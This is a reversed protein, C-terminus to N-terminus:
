TSMSLLVKQISRAFILFAILMTPKRGIRDSVPGILLQFFALAVFYGSVFIQMVSYDVNFDRAMSPLSPLFISMNMASIGALIGLTIIHPPTKNDLFRSQIYYKNETLM